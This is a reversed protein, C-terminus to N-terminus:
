GKPPPPLPQWHTADTLIKCFQADIIRIHMNDNAPYCPSFVIVKGIDPASSIPRWQASLERELQRAFDAKVITSSGAAADTRPTDSM